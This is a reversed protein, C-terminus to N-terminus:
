FASFFPSFSSFFYGSERFPGGALTPPGKWETGHLVPNVKGRGRKQFFGQSRGPMAPDSDEDQLDHDVEREDEKKQAVTDAGLIQVLAQDEVLELVPIGMM